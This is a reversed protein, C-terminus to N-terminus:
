VNSFLKKKLIFETYNNIHIFLLIIKFKLHQM